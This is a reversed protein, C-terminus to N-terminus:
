AWSNSGSANSSPLPFALVVVADVKRRAPLREFFDRRDSAHKVQYLLVDLDADGLM